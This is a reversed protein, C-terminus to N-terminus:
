MPHTSWPIVHSPDVMAKSVADITGNAMAYAIEAFHDGEDRSDDANTIFDAM